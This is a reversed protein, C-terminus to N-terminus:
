HQSLSERVERSDRRPPSLQYGVGYITDIHASEIPLKRRLSAVHTDIIRNTVRVDEGWVEHILLSREVVQGHHKILVGLIKLELPSLELIRRVNNGADFYAQLEIPDIMLGCFGRHVHLKEAEALRELIRQKFPEIRIPKTIYDDAGIGFGTLKSQESADSTLFVVPARNHRPDNRIMFFIDYGDSDPLHLDVIFFLYTNESLLHKVDSRLYAHDVQAYPSLIERVLEAMGLDDEVLLIRTTTNM